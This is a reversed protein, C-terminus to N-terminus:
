FCIKFSAYSCFFRVVLAALLYVFCPANDAFSTAAKAFAFVFAVVVIVVLLEDRRRSGGVGGGIEVTGIVVGLVVVVVVRTGGLPLGVEDVVVVGGGWLAWLGLMAVGQSIESFDV